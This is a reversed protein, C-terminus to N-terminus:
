VPVGLRRLRNYDALSLAVSGRLGLEFTRTSPQIDGFQARDYWMTYAQLEAVSRQLGALYELLDRYTLHPFRLSFASNHARVLAIVPPRVAPFLRAVDPIIHSVLDIYHVVDSQLRERIETRLYGRHRWGSQRVFVTDPETPDEIIRFSNIYTPLSLRQYKQTPMWALYPFTEDYPQPILSYEALGWRGDICPQPSELGEEKWRPLDPIQKTNSGLVLSGTETQIWADYDLRPPM